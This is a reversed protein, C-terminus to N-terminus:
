ESLNSTLIKEGVNMGMAYGTHKSEYIDKCQKSMRNYLKDDSCLMDIKELWVKADNPCLFGNVGDVIYDKMCYADLYVGGYNYLAYIRAYDSVFAFKKVEYAEQVYKPSQSIVFNDENWEVFQYDPLKEKWGAIYKKINDPKEKGGFWCYHIIKPIM